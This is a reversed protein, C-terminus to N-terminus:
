LKQSLNPKGYAPLNQKVQQLKGSRYVLERGSPLHRFCIGEPWTRDQASRELDTRRFLRRYFDGPTARSHTPDRVVLWCAGSTPIAM